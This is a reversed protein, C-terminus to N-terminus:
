SSLSALWCSLGKIVVWEKINLVPSTFGGVFSNVLAILFLMLSIPTPIGSSLTADRRAGIDYMGTLSALMNNAAFSFGPVYSADVTQMWLSKGIEVADQKAKNFKELDVADEYYDIRAQLYNKLDERFSDRIDPLTEIRLTVNRILSAEEAMM